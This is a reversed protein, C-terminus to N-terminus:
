DDDDRDSFHNQGEDYHSAFGDDSDSYDCSAEEDRFDNFGLQDAIEENLQDNFELDSETESVSDDNFRVEKRILEKDLHKADPEVAPEPVPEDAPAPLDAVPVVTSDVATEAVPIPEGTPPDTRAKVNREILDEDRPRKLNSDTDAVVEDVENEILDDNNRVVTVPISQPISDICSM